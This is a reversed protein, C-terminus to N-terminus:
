PHGFGMDPSRGRARRATSRLVVAIASAAARFNPPTPPNVTEEPVRWM